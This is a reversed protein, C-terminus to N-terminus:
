IKNQSQEPASNGGTIKEMNENFLLFFDFCLVFINLYTQKARWKLKSVVVISTFLFFTKIMKSLVIKM